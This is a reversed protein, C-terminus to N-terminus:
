EVARDGRDARKGANDLRDRTFRRHEDVAAKTAADVDDLRQREARARHHDPARMEPADGAGPLVADEPHQLEEPALDVARERKPAPVSDGLEVCADKKLVRRAFRM